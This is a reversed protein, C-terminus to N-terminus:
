LVGLQRGFGILAAYDRCHRSMCWDSKVVIYDDNGGEHVLHGARAFQAKLAESAKGPRHGTPYDLDNTTHNEFPGTSAVRPDKKNTTYATTM